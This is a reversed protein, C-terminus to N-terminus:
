HRRGAREDEYAKAINQRDLENSAAAAEDVSANINQMNFVSAVVTAPAIRPMQFDRHEIAASIREEMATIYLSRLGIKKHLAADVDGNQRSAVGEVTVSVWTFVDFSGITVPFRMADVGNHKLVYVLHTADKQEVRFPS